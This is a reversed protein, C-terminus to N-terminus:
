IGGPIYGSTACSALVTSYKAGQSVGMSAEVTTGVLRCKVLLSNLAGGEWDKSADSTM